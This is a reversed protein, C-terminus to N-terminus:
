NDISDKSVHPTSVISHFVIVGISTGMVNCILDTLSSDRTPLYVQLLEIALSFGFGLLVTTMYVVSIRFRRTKLLVGAFFFGFPIFGVINITVDQFFSRNLQFDDYRWPVSLVSLKVPEFIEPIVLQNDFNLHDHVISGKREDFLYLAICGNDRAPLGGKHVWDHYSSFVQSAALARNYIALGSLYGTWYSGSSHSNGLILRVPEGKYGALLRHRPYFKARMGNQYIATGEPGSTITIFTDINKLLANSLGIEQYSKGPKRASPDDTRSRIALHSRWQGLFFIYPTKEDYLTIISPLSSTETLPRLWLEMSISRDPFLSNQEKNWNDTSIVMGNGYFNIGNRDGLWMVNNIPRFDFPWLGTILMGVCIASFIVGYFTAGRDQLWRFNFKKLIPFSM